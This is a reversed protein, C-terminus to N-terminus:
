GKYPLNPDFYGYAWYGIIEGHQDYFAEEAVVGNIRDKVKSTIKGFRLWLYLDKLRAKIYLKRM